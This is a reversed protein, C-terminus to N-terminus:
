ITLKTVWADGIRKEIVISGTTADFRLRMARQGFYLISDQAMDLADTVNLLPIEMNATEVPEVLLVSAEGTMGSQDNVQVTYYGEGLRKITSSTSGDQWLLSYPLVGGYIRVSVQGNKAGFSTPNVVDFFIGLRDEVTYQFIASSSASDTVRVTYTGPNLSIATESSQSDSWLVFYPPSGGVINLAISGYVIGTEDYTSHVVEATVTFM